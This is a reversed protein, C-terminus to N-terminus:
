VLSWENMGKVKGDEQCSMSNFYFSPNWKSLQLQNIDENVHDPYVQDAYKTITSVRKERLIKDDYVYLWITYCINQHHSHITKSKTKVFQNGCSNLLLNLVIKSVLIM